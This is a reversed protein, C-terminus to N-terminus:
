SRATRETGSKFVWNDFLLFSVLPVLVVAGVIGVAYHLHLREVALGMSLWSLIAGVAHVVAFRIFEIRVGGASGFTFSRHALFSFPIATGYGALAAVQTGLGLHAIYAATSVAYILTSALGVIPFRVLKSRSLALLGGKM